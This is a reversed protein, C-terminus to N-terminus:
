VRKEWRIYSERGNIGHVWDFDSNGSIDFATGVARTPANKSDHASPSRRPRDRRNQLQVECGFRPGMVRLDRSDRSDNRKAIEQTKPTKQLVVASM